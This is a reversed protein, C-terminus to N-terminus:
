CNQFVFIIVIYDDFRTRDGCVEFDSAICDFDLIKDEIYTKGKDYSSSCFVKWIM